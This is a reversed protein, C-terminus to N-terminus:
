KIIIAITPSQNSIVNVFDRVRSETNSIMQISFSYFSCNLDTKMTSIASQISSLLLILLLLLIFLIRTGIQEEFDWIIAAAAQLLLIFM